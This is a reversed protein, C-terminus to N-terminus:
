LNTNITPAATPTGVTMLVIGKSGRHPAPTKVPPKSYDQPMAWWKRWYLRQREFIPEFVHGPPFVTELFTHCSYDAKTAGRGNLLATAHPRDPAPIANIESASVFNVLDIDDPDLRNGDTFSGDVWQTINLGLGSLDRRYRCFGDFVPKRTRSTPFPDVCREKLEDETAPHVGEPLLGERNLPLLPM